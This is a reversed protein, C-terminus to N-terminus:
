IAALDERREEGGLGAKAESAAESTKEVTKEM